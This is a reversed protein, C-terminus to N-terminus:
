AESKALHQSQENMVEINVKLFLNYKHTEFLQSSNISTLIVSRRESILVFHNIFHNIVVLDTCFELKYQKIRHDYYNLYVSSNHTFKLTESFHRLIQLYMNAHQVSQISMKHIGM